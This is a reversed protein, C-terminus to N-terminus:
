ESFGSLKILEMFIRSLEILKEVKNDNLLHELISRPGVCTLIIQLSLSLTKKM